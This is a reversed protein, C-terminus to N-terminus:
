STDEGQKLYDNDYMQETRGDAAERREIEEYDMDDEISRSSAGRLPKLSAAKAVKKISEEDIYDTM